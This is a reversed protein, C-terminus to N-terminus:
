LSELFLEQTLIGTDWFFITSSSKALFMQFSKHKTFTEGYMFVVAGM